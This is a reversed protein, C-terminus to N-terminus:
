KLICNYAPRVKPLISVDRGCGMSSLSFRVDLSQGKHLNSVKRGKGGPFHTYRPVPGKPLKSVARGEVM